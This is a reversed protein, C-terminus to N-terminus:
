CLKKATYNFHDLDNRDTLSDALNLLSNIPNSFASRMLSMFQDKISEADKTAENLSLLKKTMFEVEEISANKQDLRRTLEAILDQDTLNQIDAM